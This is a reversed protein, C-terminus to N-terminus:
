WLSRPAFSESFAGIVLLPPPAAIRVVCALKCLTIVCACCWILVVVISRCTRLHHAVDAVSYLNCVAAASHIVLASYLISLLIALCTPHVNPILFVTYGIELSM